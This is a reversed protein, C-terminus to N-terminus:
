NGTNPFPCQIGSNDWGPNEFRNEMWDERLGAWPRCKGTGGNVTVVAATTEEAEPDATGRAAFALAAFWIALLIAAVLLVALLATLWAPIRFCVLGEEKENRCKRKSRYVENCEEM